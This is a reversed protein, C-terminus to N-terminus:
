RRAQPPAGFDDSGISMSLYVVPADDAASFEPLYLAGCVMLAALLLSLIRKIKM